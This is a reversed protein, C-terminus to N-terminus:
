LSLCCTYNQTYSLDFWGVTCCANHLELSSPHVSLVLVLVTQPLYLFQRLSTGSSDSLVTLMGASTKCYSVSLLFLKKNGVIKLSVLKEASLAAEWVFWRQQHSRRGHHCRHTWQHVKFCFADSHWGWVWSPAAFIFLFIGTLNHLTSEYLISFFLFFIGNRFYCLLRLTHKQQVFTTNFVTM